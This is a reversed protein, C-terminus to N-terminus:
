LGILIPSDNEHAKGLRAVFGSALNALPHIPAAREEVWKRVLLRSLEGVVEVADDLGKFCLDGLPALFAVLAPLVVLAPVGAPAPAAMAAMRMTGATLVVGIVAVPTSTVVVPAPVAAVIEASGLVQPSRHAEWAFHDSAETM